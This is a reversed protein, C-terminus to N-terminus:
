QLILIYQFIYCVKKKLRGKQKWPKKVIGGKTTRTNMILTFFSTVMQPLVFALDSEEDM